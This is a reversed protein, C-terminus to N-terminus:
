WLEAREQKRQLDVFKSHKQVNTYGLQSLAKHHNDEYIYSGELEQHHTINGGETATFISTEHRSDGFSTSYVIVYDSGGCGKFVVRPSIQYLAAHGGFCPLNDKFLWAVGNKIKEKRSM